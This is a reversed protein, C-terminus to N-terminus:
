HELFYNQYIMIILENIEHQVLWMWGRWWLYGECANFFYYSQVHQLNLAFANLPKCLACFLFGFCSTKMDQSGDCNNHHENFNPNLKMHNIKWNRAVHAGKYTNNNYLYIFNSWKEIVECSRVHNKTTFEGIVKILM